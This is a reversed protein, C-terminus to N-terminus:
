GFGFGDILVYDARLEDGPTPYDLLRVALEVTDGYASQYDIWSTYCGASPFTVKLKFWEDPIDLGDVALGQSAYSCYSETIDYGGIDYSGYTPYDEAERRLAEAAHSALPVAALLVAAIAM